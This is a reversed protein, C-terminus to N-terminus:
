SEKDEEELEKDAEREWAELTRGERPPMNHRKMEELTYIGNSWLAGQIFGLWRFAKDMRKEDVFGRTKECMEVLHKLQQNEDWRETSLLKTLKTEYIKTVEKVKEGTM